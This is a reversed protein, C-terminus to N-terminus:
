ICCFYRPCCTLVPWNSHVSLWYDAASSGAAFFTACFTAKLLVPLCLPALIKDLYPASCFVVDTFLFMFMVVTAVVVVVVVVGLWAICVCVCVCVCVSLSVRVRARVCVFVGDPCM